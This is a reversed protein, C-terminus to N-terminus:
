MACKQYLAASTLFKSRSFKLTLHECVHQLESYIFPLTGSMNDYVMRIDVVKGYASFIDHLDREKINTSLGFVGLVKCPKTPENRRNPPGGGRRSEFHRRPPPGRRNESDRYRSRDDDRYTPRRYRDETRPSDNRRGRVPSVDYSDRRPRRSGYNQGDFSM